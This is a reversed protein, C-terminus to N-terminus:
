LAPASVDGGLLRDLMAYVPVRYHLFCPNVWVVNM